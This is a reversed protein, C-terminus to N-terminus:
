NREWELITEFDTNYRLSEDDIDDPEVAAWSLGAFRVGTEVGYSWAV